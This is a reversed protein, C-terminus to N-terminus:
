KKKNKGHHHRRKRKRKGGGEEQVRVGDMPKIGMKKFQDRLPKPAKGTTIFEMMNEDTILIGKKAADESEVEIDIVMRDLMRGIEEETGVFGDHSLDHAKEGIVTELKELTLDDDDTVWDTVYYLKRSGKIMGFLIPDRRKIREQDDIIENILSFKPAGGDYYLVCYNDFVLLGDFLIKRKAVESPLINEYYRLYELRMGRESLLMFKVIQEETIYKLHGSRVLALEAELVSRSGEVKKAIEYQGSVKLQNEVTDVVKKARLIEENTPSMMSAKVEEFVKDAPEGIEYPEEQKKPYSFKDLISGFWSKKKTKDGSVIIGSDTSDIRSGIRGIYNRREHKANRLLERETRRDSISGNNEWSSGFNGSYDPDKSEGNDQKEIKVAIKRWKPLEEEIFFDEFVRLKPKGGIVAISPHETYRERTKAM